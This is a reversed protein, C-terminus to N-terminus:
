DSIRNRGAVKARYLAEDARALCGALPEVGDWTALGFSCTQGGPVNRRLRDLAIRAEDANSGPLAIAFEEGGWRAVLDVERLSSTTREAFERLLEDGADHGNTDNYKKFHDLDAVALTLSEGTRRVRATLVELREYWGRRNVLGTLPDTTALAQLQQRLM